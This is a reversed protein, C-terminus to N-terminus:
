IKKERAFRHLIEFISERRERTIGRNGKNNKM